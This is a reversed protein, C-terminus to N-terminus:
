YGTDERGCFPDSPSRGCFRSRGTLKDMLAQRTHETNCYTNIYTHIMPADLLHYPNATSIMLVPVIETFWPQSNSGHLPYWQLRNTVHNSENEMDVIYVVLDYKKRFDSVRQEYFSQVQEERYREVQFGERSFLAEYQEEIRERDSNTLVELLVRPYREPSVPLLHRTDKVLTIGRDACEQAKRRHEGCGMIERGGAPVLTGEAQKRHLGLAAKMALIRTVAEELRKGSLIGGEYGRKMFEYDEELSRNFLLVDCGSEIAFPVAKEREMACCFGLMQTADTSILGNFGLKGRLLKQLLVPSLTAPRIGKTEPDFRKEYAPQAIHGAMISLIGADILTRYVEGYTKDWEECSLSNVSTLIHQDREDVGDGPFHKAAAAMGREQIGKMCALTMNRVRVPDSGYTRVNTIPNRFNMDIDAVPAFAWNCGCAIGEAASISGLEYAKETDDTAAVLMQCGYATGDGAIGTGGSELNAALLLPIRSSKQLFRNTEAMDEGHPVDRYMMGGIHFSLYNEKLKERDETLGIPCFLQGIKEEVSMSRLTEEVWRVGNDDLFFPKGKLDIM